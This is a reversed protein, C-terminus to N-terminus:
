RRSFITVCGAVASLITRRPLSRAGTTRQWFRRGASDSLEDPRAAPITEYLPLRERAGADEVSWYNHNTGSGTSNTVQLTALGDGVPAGTSNSVALTVAM